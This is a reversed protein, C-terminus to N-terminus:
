KNALFNLYVNLCVFDTKSSNKIQIPPHCPLLTHCAAFLSPSGTVLKSCVSTKSHSLYNNRQRDDLICESALASTQSEGGVIVTVTSNIVAATHV